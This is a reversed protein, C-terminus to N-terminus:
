LTFSLLYFLEESIKAVVPDLSAEPVVCDRTWHTGLIREKCTFDGSYSASCESEEVALTLFGHLKM